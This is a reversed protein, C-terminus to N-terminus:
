LISTHKRWREPIPLPVCLQGDAFVSSSCVMEGVVSASVCGISSLLVLLHGGIIVFCDLLSVSGIAACGIAACVDAVMIAAIALTRATQSFRDALRPLSLGALILALPPTM